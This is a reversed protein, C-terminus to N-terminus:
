KKLRIARDHIWMLALFTRVGIPLYLSDVRGNREIYIPEEMM